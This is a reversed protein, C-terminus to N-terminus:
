AAAKIRAIANNLALVAAANGRQKELEVQHILLALTENRHAAVADDSDASTPATRNLDAFTDQEDARSNNTRARAQAYWEDIEVDKVRIAAEHNRQARVAKEHQKALDTENRAMALMIDHGSVLRELVRRNEALGRVHERERQEEAILNPLDALEAYKRGLRMRADLLASFADSQGRRSCLNATSNDVTHTNRAIVDAEFGFWAKGAPMNDTPSAVDSFLASVPSPRKVPLKPDDM